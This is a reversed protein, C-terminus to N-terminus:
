PPAHLIPKFRPLPMCYLNLDLSPCPRIFDTCQKLIANNYIVTNKKQKAKDIKVNEDFVLQVLFVWFKSEVTNKLM